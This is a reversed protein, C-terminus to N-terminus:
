VGRDRRARKRRRFGPDRSLFAELIAPVLESLSVAAGYEQEYLAAYEELDRHLGPCLLLAVRIPARDPLRRLKIHGM